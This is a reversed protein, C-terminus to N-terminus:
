VVLLDVSSRTVWVAEQDLEEKIMLATRTVFRSDFEFNRSDTYAISILLTPEKEGLYSGIGEVVTYGLHHRDDLISFLLARNRNVFDSVGDTHLGVHITYVTTVTM